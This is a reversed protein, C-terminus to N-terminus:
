TGALFMRRFREEITGQQITITVRLIAETEVVEVGNRTVTIDRDVEEVEILRQDGDRAPGLHKKLLAGWNALDAEVKDNNISNVYSTEEFRAMDLNHYPQLSGEANSIFTIPANERSDAALNLNPSGAPLDSRQLSLTTLNDSTFATSSIVEYEGGVGEIIIRDGNGPLQSLGKVVLANGGEDTDENVSPDGYQAAIPNYVAALEEFMLEVAYAAKDFKRLTSFDREQISQLTMFVTVAVGLVAAATMGEVLSLGKQFKFKINRM